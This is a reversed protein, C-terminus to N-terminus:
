MRQNVQAQRLSRDVSGKSAGDVSEIWEIPELSTAESVRLSLTRSSWDQLLAPSYAWNAPHLESYLQM